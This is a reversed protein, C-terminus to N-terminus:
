PRVLAVLAPIGDPTELSGFAYQKGELAYLRRLRLEGWGFTQIGGGIWEGEFVVDDMDTEDYAQTEGPILMLYWDLTLRLEEGTGSIDVNLLEASNAGYNNNPDYLIFGKWGGLVFEASDIIQAGEPVGNEIVDETYWLFDELAPREETSLSAGTEEPAPISGSETAAPPTEKESAPTVLATQETRPAPSEKVAASRLNPPITLIGIVLMLLNAAILIAPLIKNGRGASPINDRM